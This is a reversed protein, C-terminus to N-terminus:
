GLLDKLLDKLEKALEHESYKVDPYKLSLKEKAAKLAEKEIHAKDGSNWNYEEATREAHSRYEIIEANLFQASEPKNTSKALIKHVIVNATERILSNRVRDKGM